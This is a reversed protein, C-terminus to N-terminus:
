VKSVLFYHRTNGQSLKHIILQFYSQVYNIKDMPNKTLLSKRNLLKDRLEKSHSKEKVMVEGPKRKKM